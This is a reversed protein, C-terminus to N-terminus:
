LTAIKYYYQRADTLTLYLSVPARIHVLYLKDIGSLYRYLFMCCFIFLFLPVTQNLSIHVAYRRVALYNLASIVPIVCRSGLVKCVVCVCVCVCVVCMCVVCVCVVRACVSCVYVSCM